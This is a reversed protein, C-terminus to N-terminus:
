HKLPQGYKDRRWDAALLILDSLYWVGVGALSILKLTASPYRELYFRDAGFFGFFLSLLFTVKWSKQKHTQQM